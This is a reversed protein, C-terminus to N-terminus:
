YTHLSMETQKGENGGKGAVEREGLEVGSGGDEREASIGVAGVELHATRKQPCLSLSSPSLSPNKTQLERSWSVHRPGPWTHVLRVVSVFGTVFGRVRIHLPVLVYM